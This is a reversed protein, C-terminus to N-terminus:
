EKAKFPMGMLEMLGEAEKDTKSTTVITIDMGQTRKIKDVDVEPFIIQDTVGLTYNGRGDFSKRPVGRFDRIRPISVSVLRDFFEYMRKGRMTVKCGIPVNEKLKFNSISKKSRTIIPRQGTIVALEAAMDEAEKPNAIAEGVGMNIVIKEFKPVQYINKYGFKKMMEPVVKEKYYKLLRAM